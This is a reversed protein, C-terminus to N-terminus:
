KSLKELHLPIPLATILSILTRKDGTFSSLMQTKIMRTFPAELITRGFVSIKKVQLLVPGIYDIDLIFLTLKTKVFLM